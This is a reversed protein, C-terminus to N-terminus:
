PSGRHVAGEGKGGGFGLPRGAGRGLSGQGGQHEVLRQALPHAPHLGLGPPEGKLMGVNQGAASPSTSRIAPPIAQPPSGIRGAHAVEGLAEGGLGAATTERQLPIERPASRRVGRSAANV